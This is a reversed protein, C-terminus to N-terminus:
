KGHKHIQDWLPPRREEGLIIPEIGAIECYTVLKDVHDGAVGLIHNCPFVSVFEDFSCDLKVFAHPWTPNTMAALRRREEEPLDQVMGRVIVMYLKDDWIGIRAFTMEGPAADFEVSAGGARFYLELAPHLTVKKFNERPDDSRMAYWSSHNGSNCFDWLDKDPHYLRVDAFLVPLGGSIYKLVQMTVAALSDAETSCIFPEKAGNWDYPDNMLMEAVDTICVYESMERQGKIGCFDFGYEENVAKMALYLRIQKKLTEPTLMRGDYRIRDGLMETLWRFGKEVEEEPVEKMKEVLWLQDIQYVTIGLAKQLAILHFYGTEMGMSHGGYMGYVQGRMSAYAEAAMIWNVVREQVKPDEIDGIIRHTRIGIQRLAGDTALLGVNGPYAGENNSLSLIPKDRGVMNIFPWVLYPYNWIYYLLIIIKANAKALEEGVEKAIDISTIIKSGTVIEPKEGTRYSVKDRIIKATKELNEVCKPILQPHLFKREDGLMAIGIASLKM